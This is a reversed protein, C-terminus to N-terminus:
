DKSAIIIDVYQVQIDMNHTHAGNSGVSAHTHIGSSDTDQVGTPQSINLTTSGSAASKTGSGSYSRLVHTHSGESGHDHSPIESTVLTHADTVTKSFVTSFAVSGGSSVSGTVVRLAKNNHTTAKTWGTPAATQQFLMFNVNGGDLAVLKSALLGGDTLDGAADLSAVNGVAAPVIKNARSNQLDTIDVINTAIEGDNSTINTTNTVIDLLAQALDSAQQASMKGANGSAAVAVNVLDARAQETGGANVDDHVHISKNGTNVTIEGLKGIFANAGANDHRVLQVRKTM